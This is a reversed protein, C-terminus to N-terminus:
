GYRDRFVAAVALLVLAMGGLTWATLPEHLVLLGLAVAIVPNVYAYTMSVSMPLRQLVQVYSTFGVLSGGVVLYGWALWSETTPAPAPERALLAVVAVAAGGLLIQYGASALPPVGVPCRRQLLSGGAWTVSAVMLAAASPPDVQSGLSLAPASLLAVGGLGLALATVLLTSPWRRDLAAEMLAVWVPASAVMLAAYSSHARQEAWVVLGNGGLWLLTGSAALVVLERRTLRLRQGVLAALLLILAGAVLARSAGMTFPPFGAGERVALRIALYTSGWAAYVALLYALGALSIGRAGLEPASTRRPEPGRRVM